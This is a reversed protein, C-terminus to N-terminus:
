QSKWYKLKIKFRGDLNSYSPALRWSLDEWVEIFGKPRDRKKIKICKGRSDIYEVM